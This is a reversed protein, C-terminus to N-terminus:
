LSDLYRGVAVEEADFKPLLAALAATDSAKGAQEIAACLEGLALAGVSRASSKLKHALASVLQADGREHAEHLESAIKDASIRFDHLFETITEADDGVLAKLVSVDVPVAGEALLGGKGDVTCRPEVTTDPMWKQLMAKLSLLQVPKSLYDDMGVKLCHDAEGKLANATFAIIPIHSKGNEAARIAKTLEYGDMEPMHLDTILISYDGRQWQMLAERGNKAIDAAQGLLMLQQLIVKQNIENDEAVLILRGQMRAEERSLITPTASIATRDTPKDLSHDVIRGAAVGVARLFTNRGMSDADVSIAGSLERRCRRRKGRGIILFRVDTNNEARVAAYLEDLQWPGRKATEVVVVILGKTWRSLCQRADDLGSSREVIAGHYNLYFALDDALTDTGGVLLCPLGNIQVTHEDTESEESLKALPLRVSFLSGQGPESLVSVEGGMMNALRRCIVLGLGTGGFSRTTSTDAQTFPVFLRAQTEADIGIGNDKVLFTVQMKGDIENPNLQARISVKAQRGQGSSFKIANNALNVLIQRLRTPDGMLAEPLAPDIFQTLEVGKDLALYDLTNCVNGMIADINMPINEITLKGAEIKSFDLIDEIVALLSFASDHIVESIKHQQPTLSSQQLVDIMGIVGNMPTRIEHSMAALFDSKAKNAADAQAKAAVLEETRITIMKELHNRYEDLEAGMRKKETINEKIAVYHSVRGDAQRLPAIIAFEIYESGDKRKNYFEGKWSDGKNLADWMAEYNEKHTKGSHLIRPNQGIVESRTYGTVDLFAANVYEIEAQLNTIVISSPSQEVALSLKRLSNESEKRKTIDRVAAQLMAKGDLNMATLLVEAPFESGDLRRHMWEFMTSKNGFARAVHEAILSASDKGDPQSPPSFVDPKKGIIDDRSVCGFMQLSASNCDVFITGDFLLLADSSSEFVTRFKTAMDKLAEDAQRRETIDRAIGLVGILKGENDRMPTKITELLAHHGDDAFTVWEENISPEGAAMAIRDHERFFDALEKDVFDYDTKGDIEAEQAGFFREFMPNCSLYVGNIDKLWILDPISRVLTRMRFENEALSLTLQKIETIDTRVGLMRTPKGNLDNEAVRGIVKIWRYSGDAHRIRAEYQYPTDNRDLVARIKEAVMARDEPHTRELWVRRDLMGVDPEYGLMTFYTPSAYWQDSKIDWDWVGIAAADTALSLRQTLLRAESEAAKRQAEHVFNDLAFNMDVMMEELLKQVGEDFANISSTYLNLAGIVVGERCLPLAASAGWGSRAGHKQWPATCPDHQYDQCWYPRNERIATGTPGCGSADNPDVSIRINDLYNKEDGYSTAVIVKQGSEDLLGVWAMQMGGYEVASSCIERFLEMDSHCRVIAQNCQSLAAYSQSLRQIRAENVKSGTIDDIMCLHRASINREGKLPAVTMNIWVVSGDPRLYRKEMKFGSIEGANLRTMNDMDEQVDDPHTISMWDITEMEEVTRGAIEAFRPNVEYIHGTVSDILAIGLPAQNFITNFRALNKRVSEESLKREAIDRIIATFFVGDATQWKALSLELPFEDGGKRLGVLEVTKGIVHPEGGNVVQRMSVPHQERFQEPLLRTVPQGVIEEESYGFMREAGMNWGVITGQSDTSVIADNTSQTIARLRRNSEESVAMSRAQLELGHSRQQQRWLLLVIASVVVVSFSALLSVWFVMLRLAALAESRDIKSVVFWTTSAIPRYAALVDVGRYDNGRVVGNKNTAIAISAPLDHKALPLKFMLPMNQSHRLKNLFLVSDGERQVLLTEASKSATPWREILPFLFQQATVRLVVSALSRVEQRDSVSIPVVWDMHVNGIEDLYLDGQQIHKTSIAQRLQQQLTPTNDGDNGQSLLLKGKSDFLLISKYNYIAQFNTFRNLITKSLSADHPRQVFREIQTAFPKDGVLMRAVGNREDLWNEIQIVKLDAIAQLNDSEQQETHAGYFKIIALGCLPVLLVCVFFLIILRKIETRPLVQTNQTHGMSMCSGKLLLFILVATIAVFLLGKAIEIQSQLAPDDVSISLFYSSSIIWLEGFLAYIMAVGAPTLVKSLLITRFRGSSSM